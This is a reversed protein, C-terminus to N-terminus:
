GNQPKDIRQKIIIIRVSGKIFSGNHGHCRSKLNSMTNAHQQCFDFTRLCALSNAIGFLADSNEDVDLLERQYTHIDRLTTNINRIAIQQESTDEPEQDMSYLSSAIIAFRTDGDCFWIFGESAMSATNHHRALSFLTTLQSIVRTLHTRVAFVLYLPSIIGVNPANKYIHCCM